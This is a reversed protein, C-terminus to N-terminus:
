TQPAPVPPVIEPIPRLNFSAQGLQMTTPASGSPEIRAWGSDRFLDSTFKQSTSPMPQSKMGVTNSLDTTSLHTLVFSLSDRGKALLNILSSPRNHPLNFSNM